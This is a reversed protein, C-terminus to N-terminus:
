FLVMEQESYNYVDIVATPQLIRELVLASCLVKQKEKLDSWTYLKEIYRKM